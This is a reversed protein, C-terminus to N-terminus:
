TSNPRNPTESGGAAAGLISSALRTKREETRDQRPLAISRAMLATACSAPPPSITMGSVKLMTWRRCVIPSQPGRPRERRARLLGFAHPPDTYKRYEGLAVHVPTGTNFRKM